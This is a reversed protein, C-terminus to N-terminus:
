WIYMYYVNKIEFFVFIVERIEKLDVDELSFFMLVRFFNKLLDYGMVILYFVIFLMFVSDVWFWNFYKM